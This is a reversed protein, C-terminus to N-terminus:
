ENSRAWSKGRVIYGIAAHSVGFQKGIARHTQGSSRLRRIEAVQDATLKSMGHREGTVQHTRSMRGKTASDRMNDAHTGLRLHDPNVCRPNDCSHLVEFTKPPYDLDNAYAYRHALYNRGRVRFVGYGNNNRAGCWIWCSDSKHVKASFREM